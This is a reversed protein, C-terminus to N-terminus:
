KKKKKKKKTLEAQRITKGGRTMSPTVGRVIVILAFFFVVFLVKGFITKAVISNQYAETMVSAFLFDFNVSFLTMTLSLAIMLFLFPLFILLVGVMQNVAYNRPYEPLKMGYRTQFSDEIEYFKATRVDYKYTQNYRETFHCIALGMEAYALFLVSFLTYKSTELFVSIIDDEFYDLGGISMVVTLLSLLSLYIGRKSGLMIGYVGAIPLLSFLFVTGIYRFLSEFFGLIGVNIDQLVPPLPFPLFAQLLPLVLIVLCALLFILLVLKIRRRAYFDLRSHLVLIFGLIFGIISYTERSYAMYEEYPIYSSETSLLYLDFYVLIGLLFLAATQLILFYRNQYPPSPTSSYAGEAAQQPATTTEEMAM